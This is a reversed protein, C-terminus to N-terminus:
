DTASEFTMTSLIDYLNSAVQEVLTTDEALDPTFGEAKASETLAATVVGELVALLQAGKLPLMGNTGAASATYITTPTSDAFVWTMNSGSLGPTVTYEESNCTFAKPTTRDFLKSTKM